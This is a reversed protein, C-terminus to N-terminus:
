AASSAGGGLVKPIGFLAGLAALAFVFLDDLVYPVDLQVAPLVLMGLGAVYLAAVLLGTLVASLLYLPIGKARDGRLWAVTGGVLGGLLASALFWIPFTFQVTVPTSALGLAPSVAQVTARGVRASRLTAVATEGQHLHLVVPDPRAGDSRLTVRVSDASVEMPLEVVIDARELGLGQIRPPVAEISIRTPHVPISVRAGLPSSPTLVTIEIVSDQPARELSLTAMAYPPNTHTIELQGPAVSGVASLIQMPVPGSLSTSENPRGDDSVGLYLVAQYARGTFRLGQQALLIPTLELATEGSSDLMLFQPLRAVLQDMAAGLVPPPDAVFPPDGPGPPPPPPPPPAHEVQALISIPQEQIAAIIQGPELRIGSASTTDADGEENLLVSRVGQGFIRRLDVREQAHVLGPLLVSILLLLVTVRGAVRM